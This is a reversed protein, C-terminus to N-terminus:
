ENIPPLLDELVLEVARISPATLSFRTCTGVTALTGISALQSSLPETITPALWLERAPQAVLDTRLDRDPPLGPWGLWNLYQLPNPYADDAAWVSGQQLTAEHALEDGLEVIAQHILREDTTDSLQVKLFAVTVDPQPLSFMSFQSTGGPAAPADISLFGNSEAHDCIKAWKKSGDIDKLRVTRVGTVGFIQIGGHEALGPISAWRRVLLTLLRPQLRRGDFFFLGAVVRETSAAVLQGFGGPLRGARVAPLPIRDESAVRTLLSVSAVESDGLQVQLELTGAGRRVGKGEFSIRVKTARFYWENSETVLAPGGSILIELVSAFPVVVEGVVSGDTNEVVVRVNSLEVLDVGDGGVVLRVTDFAGGKNDMLVHLTREIPHGEVAVAGWTAFGCIEPPRTASHLTPVDYVRVAVEASDGGTPAGFGQEEPLEFWEFLEALSDEVEVPRNALLRDIKTRDVAGSLADMLTKAADTRQAPRCPLHITSQDGGFGVVKLLAADSHSVSAVLGATDVREILKIATSIEVDELLWQRVTVWPSGTPRHVTFRHVGIDSEDGAALRAGGEILVDLLVNAVESVSLVTRLHARSATWGM